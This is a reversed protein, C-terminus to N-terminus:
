ARLVTVARGEPTRTEAIGIREALPAASARRGFLVLIGRDLGLGALYVDLPALGQELPDPNKDRWVKLEWAARQWARQGASATSQNAAASDDESKCQVPGGHLDPRMVVGM